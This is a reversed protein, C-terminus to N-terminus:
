PMSTHMHNLHVRTHCARSHTPCALPAQSCLLSHDHASHVCAAKPLSTLSGQTIFVLLTLHPLILHPSTFRPLTLHASSVSVWAM